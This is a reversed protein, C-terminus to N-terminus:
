SMGYASRAGAARWVADMVRDLPLPKSVVDFVGLELAQRGNDADVAILLKPISATAPDAELTGLARWAAYDPSMADIAIVGPGEKRALAALRAPDATRVVRLTGSLERILADIEHAPNLLLAVTPEQM